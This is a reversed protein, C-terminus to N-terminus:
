AVDRRNGATRRGGTVNVLVRESEAIAGSARLAIAGALSAAAAYDADIGEYRLLLDWAERIQAEDVAVITGNTERVIRYIYPYTQTPDGRLIAAAIGKPNPVVHHPEIASSSERFAHLMPACSAQQVCVIRPMRALRGLAMYERMGRYAGYIGMGSSVAQVVVDPAAPMEDFAELYALKLAERRAANFFGGEATIGRALAFDRAAHSADVYDGQVVHLHVNDGVCDAHRGVFDVGCFLHVDITGLRRAAFAFATSSNGTSSAVFSEIGLEAFQALVCAAMRDKTTGTPLGSEDKIYLEGFRRAAALADSRVCPTNGTPWDITDPVNELPLLDFFREFPNASEVLQVAGLSYVPDVPGGCRECRLRFEYSYERGCQACRLVVTKKCLLQRM